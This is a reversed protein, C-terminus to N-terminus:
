MGVVLDGPYSGTLPNAPFRLNPHGSDIVIDVLFHNSIISFEIYRSSKTNDVCLELLQMLSTYINQNTCNDM